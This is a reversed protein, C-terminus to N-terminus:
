HRVASRRFGREKLIGRIRAATLPTGWETKLWDPKNEKIWLLIPKPTQGDNALREITDDRERFRHPAGLKDKLPQADLLM